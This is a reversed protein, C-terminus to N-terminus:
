WIRFNFEVEKISDGKSDILFHRVNRAFVNTQAPIDEPSYSEVLGDEDSYSIAFDKFSPYNWKEKLDGYKLQDDGYYDFFNQLKISSIGVIKETVGFSYDFTPNVEDDPSVIIEVPMGELSIPSTEESNVLWFINRKGSKINARFKMGNFNNEIDLPLEVFNEDYLTFENENYQTILFPLRSEIRVEVDDGGTDANDIYLPKREVILNVEEFFNGDVIEELIENKYVPELGPKLFIFLGLVYILFIGISIAWDVHTTGKKVM